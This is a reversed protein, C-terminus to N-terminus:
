NCNVQRVLACHPNVTRLDSELRHLIESEEPCMNQSLSLVAISILYKM